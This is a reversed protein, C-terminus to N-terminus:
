EIVIRETHSGNSTHVQLLYVGPSEDLNFTIYDKNQYHNKILTRGALDVVEITCHDLKDNFEINFIGTSPNPYVTVNPILYEQLSATHYVCLPDMVHDFYYQVTDTVEFLKSVSALNSTDEAFVVAFSLDWEEFPTLIEEFPTSPDDKKISMMIRRDGSPNGNSFESWQAMDNPDGPYQFTTPQSQDDLIPSGDAWTGNMFNYFELPTSPDSYPYAAANSFGVGASIPSNLSVIGIAPPTAGYGLNGGDNEDFSDANYAYMLNRTTDVGIYDDNYNGLDPDLWFSSIFNYLTQTGRNILKADIFTVNTLEPVSSYQYFMYHIEVGIPDGGSGHVGGKDNVIIYSAKDGKICPYDGMQPEYVNNGNVDIFPALFYDMSLTLDGHAPWNMIDNPIVYGPTNFNNIHYAIEAKTVTWITQGFPAPFPINAAGDDTLAGPWMDQSNPYYKPATLKVQGNVDTGGFWLAGAYIAHKGSGVPVEYGSTSTSSNNFFEGIDSITAGCNNQDLVTTNIQCISYGAIFLTFLTTTIKM